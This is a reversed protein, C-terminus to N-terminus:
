PVTARENGAMPEIENVSVSALCLAHLNLHMGLVAQTVSASSVYVMSFKLSALFSATATGYASDYASQELSIVM